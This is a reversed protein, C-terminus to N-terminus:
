NAKSKKKKCQDMIIDVRKMKKFIQDLRNKDEILQFGSLDEELYKYRDYFFQVEPIHTTLCYATPMLGQVENLYDFMIHPASEIFNGLQGVALGHGAVNKKIKFLSKGELLILRLLSISPGYDKNNCIMETHKKSVIINPITALKNILTQNLNYVPGKNKTKHLQLEEQGLCILIPSPAAHLASFSLLLFFCLTLTLKM